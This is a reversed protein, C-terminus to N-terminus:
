FLLKNNIEYRLMSTKGNIMIWEELVDLNLIRNKILM